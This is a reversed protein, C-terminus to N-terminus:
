VSFFVTDTVAYSVLVPTDWSTAVVGDIFTAPNFLMQVGKFFERVIDSSSIGAAVPVATQTIM